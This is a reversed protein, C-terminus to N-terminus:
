APETDMAHPGRAGQRVMVSEREGRELAGLGARNLASGWPSGLADTQSTPMM